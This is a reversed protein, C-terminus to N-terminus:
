PTGLPQPTSVDRVNPCQENLRTGGTAKTYRMIYQVAPPESARQAVPPFQFYMPASANKFPDEAESKFHWTWDLDVTRTSGDSYHVIAKVNSRVYDGSQPDYQADGLAEFDVAGCPAGGGGAGSGALGTGNGNTGNGLSGAGSKAGAGAGQGGTPVPAVDPTAHIVHPVKPRAAAERVIREKHAAKGEPQPVVRAVPVAQNVAVAKLPPPTPKPRPTPTPTPRVIIRVTAVQLVTEKENQVPQFLPPILGAVVEHM